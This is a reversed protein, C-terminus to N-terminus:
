SSFLGGSKSRKAHKKDRSFNAAEGQRSALLVTMAPATYAAYVGLRKLADRREIRVEDQGAAGERGTPDAEHM